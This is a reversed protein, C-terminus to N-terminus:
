VPAAAQNVPGEIRTRLEDAAASGLSARLEADLPDVVAARIRARTEDLEAAARDMERCRAEYDLDLRRRNLLSRGVKNGIFAGVIAGIFAGVIARLWRGAM